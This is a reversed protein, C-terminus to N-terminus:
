WKKGTENRVGDRYAEIRRRNAPSLEEPLKDIDFWSRAMIELNPKLALSGEFDGTYYVAVLDGRGWRGQYTGIEGAISRVNLGTEEFAERMAAAEPEENKDVGGGPLTWAWPAYWHSVLLIRRDDILIIRVGQIRRSSFSTWYRVAHVVGILWLSFYMGAKRIFRM